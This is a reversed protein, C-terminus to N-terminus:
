GGNWSSAVNRLSFALVLLSGSRYGGLLEVELTESFLGLAEGGLLVGRRTIAVFPVGGVCCFDGGGVLHRKWSRAPWSRESHM